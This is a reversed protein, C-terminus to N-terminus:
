GEDSFYDEGTYELYEARTLMAGPEGCHIGYNDMNGEDGCYICVTRTDESIEPSLAKAINTASTM